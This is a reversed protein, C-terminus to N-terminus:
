GNSPEVKMGEFMLELRTTVVRDGTELGGNIVVSDGDRHVVNVQKRHLTNGSLVFVSDNTHLVSSPLRVASSVPKGPLTASVFLGLPLRKSHVATDYPSDIEIVVPIVRSLEDVRAEVRALKGQWQQEQEGIQASLVVRSGTSSELFGAEASTLPLTVQAVDISLLRAM